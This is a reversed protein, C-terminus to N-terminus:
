PLIGIDLGAKKMLAFDGDSTLITASHAMAYCAILLDLTKVTKGIRRLHFGCNGADEWLRDPQSLFRCGELLPLVVNREKESKFGRLIETMVPGCIAVQNAELSQQVMEALPRRGRFFDIWASTDVLIM